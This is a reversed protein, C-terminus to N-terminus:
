TKKKSGSVFDKLYYPDFYAIDEYDKNIYKKFALIGMDKASPFIGDIFHANPHNIIMKCKLAGDGFFLVKEKLFEAYTDSEVIDARIERVENNKQDYISSFVETRRADIMPCYFKYGRKKLIAFSMARLTSVAILPIELSYCLGKATSVGIRLGTYSGPGKSVAIGDIAKLNVKTKNIVEKIFLTLQESHSYEASNYEKLQLLKDNEFLAVSCNKTATEIALILAM